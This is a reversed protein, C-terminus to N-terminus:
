DAAPSASFGACQVIPLPPYKKFRSNTKSLECLWFESGKASRISRAHACTLCLGVRARRLLVDSDAKAV